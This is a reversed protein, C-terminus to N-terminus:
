QVKMHEYELNGQVIYIITIVINKDELQSFFFETQKNTQTEKKKKYFFDNM